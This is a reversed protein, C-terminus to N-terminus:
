EAIQMACPPKSTNRHLSCGRDQPFDGGAEEGREGLAGRPRHHGQLVGGDAPADGPHLFRHEGPIGHHDVRARGRRCCRHAHFTHPARGRAGPPNRLLGGARRPLSEPVSVGASAPITVALNCLSLEEDTLGSGRQRLAGRRDGDRISAIRQALQEPFISFYKRNRGRRRTTGAVLVADGIAERLDEHLTAEDLVDAAYHALTRAQAPDLLGETM